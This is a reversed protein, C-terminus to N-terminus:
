ADAGPCWGHNVELMLLVGWVGRGWSVRIKGIETGAMTLMLVGSAM